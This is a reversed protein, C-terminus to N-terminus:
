RALMRSFSVKSWGIEGAEEGMEEGAEDATDEIADGADEVHEGVGEVTNCGALLRLKVVNLARLSSSRLL